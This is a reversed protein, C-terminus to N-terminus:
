SAKISLAEIQAEVKELNAILIDRAKQLEALSLDKVAQQTAKEALAAKKKNLAATKQRKVKAKEAAEIQEPTLPKPMFWDNIKAIADDVSLSPERKNKRKTVTLDKSDFAHTGQISNLIGRVLAGLSPSYDVAVIMTAKGDREHRNSKAYTSLGHTIFDKALSKLNVQTSKVFSNGELADTVLSNYNQM